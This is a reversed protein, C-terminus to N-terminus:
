GNSKTSKSPACFDGYLMLAIMTLPCIKWMENSIDIAFIQKAGKLALDIAFRGKGTGADLITKRLPDFLQRLIVRQKSYLPQLPRAQESEPEWSTAAKVFYRKVYREDLEAM